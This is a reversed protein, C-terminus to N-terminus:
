AAQGEDKEVEGLDIEVPEPLRTGCWPCFQIAISSSGGDHIMIGYSRWRDSYDILCDPCDFRDPHEECRREVEERLKDCCHEM